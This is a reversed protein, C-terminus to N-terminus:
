RSSRTWENYEQLSRVEAPKRGLATIAAAAARAAALTTFYPIDRVLATRRVSFSDKVEQPGFTTNVVLQVEGNKMADVCHPRGEKVKLTRVVPVGAKEIADATGSTAMLRFGAQHLKQAVEVAAPKDADRVSIFACGS